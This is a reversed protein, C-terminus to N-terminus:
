GYNINPDIFKSWNIESFIVFLFDSVFHFILSIVLKM